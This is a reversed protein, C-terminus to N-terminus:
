ALLWNGTKRSYEFGEYGFAELADPRTIENQIIWRAMAGRCMKAYIVVMRPKGGGAVYFEPTVVRVTRAVRKWDVIKKFEASALNVLIGDDELVREILWDTLLPQWYHFMDKGGNGPLEVNGELRYPKVRDLPRLLGYLFSGVLLHGNAYRLEETTWTEPALKRFAMGNYAFAAPVFGEKDFFRQYRLWNELAIERNVRLLGQLEEVSYGALQLANHCAQRGFAPETTFGTDPPAGGTMTKACALLIQM